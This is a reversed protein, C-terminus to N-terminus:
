WSYGISGKNTTLKVLRFGALTVTQVATGKKKVLITTRDKAKDYLAEIGFNNDVVVTQSILTKSSDWIYVFSSPLSVTSTGYNIGTLRAYTLINGTFTKQFYLTTKNESTDVVTTTTATKTVTTPLLSDDIGIVSIDRTSTSVSVGVEPATIDPLVVNGQKAHLVRDVIGDGNFDINLTSSLTPSVTPDINITVITSTSSPVAAFTSTALTENGNVEEIDLTFRGSGTGRMVVQGALSKPISLWQVEGIREYDVGPINSVTTSATIGTYNGKSDTFGLTLPSHLVFHLRPDSGDYVPETDSIFQPLPASTSTVINSLFTILQPVEFINGHATRLAGPANFGFIQNFKLLNIWYRTTIAGNAWHASPEVVTGDGDIVKNLKFTVQNGYTPSSCGTANAITCGTESREYEINSLTENGWGAITIVQLGAPRVWADLSAHMTIANKLLTTNALGPTAVDNIAPAGRSVDTAFNKLLEESHIGVGLNATDSYKTLWDNMSSPDFKIVPDDTYTFFRDSPLLNYVMPTYLSLQRAAPASFLIPFNEFPLSQDAGHLLGPIAEPTGLQPAAVMILRDIYQSYEPHSLLTKALLGGNSHTIITVKGTRSTAALRRLEQSIYPTSTAANTGHYYIKGDIDNGNAVLESYDLRWDYAIPEWDVIKNQLKLLNMANIFDSYIPYIHYANALIHKEKTYVNNTAASNTLDLNPVDFGFLSNPLWIKNETLTGPTFLESGEIGPLFMVNSNCDPDVGPTCYKPPPPPLPPTSPECGNECIQFTPTSSASGIYNDPAGFFASSPALYTWLQDGHHIVTGAITPMIREQIVDAKPSTTKVIGDFPFGYLLDAWYSPGDPNTWYYPDGDSSIRLGIEFINAESISRDWLRVTTSADAVFDPGDWTGIFKVPQYETGDFWRLGPRQLDVLMEHDHNPASQWVVDAFVTHAHIFILTAIASAVFCRVVPGRTHM